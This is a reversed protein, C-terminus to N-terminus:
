PLLQGKEVADEICYTVLPWLPPVVDRVLAMRKEVQARTVRYIAWTYGDTIYNNLFPQLRDLANALRSEPTQVAEFEDWLARWQTGQDVPLLSFLRDAAEAERETKSQYGREDYAFTDGAHIEILDHALAMTLVRPMDSNSFVSHEQLISAMVALHWSHEASNERRTGDVLLSQRLVLKLKDIELLFRIQAALREGTLNALHEHPLTNM